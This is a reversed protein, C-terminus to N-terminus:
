GETAPEESAPEETAEDTAPDAPAEPEGITGDPQLNKPEVLNVSAVM